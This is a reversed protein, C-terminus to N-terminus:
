PRGPRHNRHTGQIRSPIVNMILAKRDYSIFYPEGVLLERIVRQSVGPDVPDGAAYREM